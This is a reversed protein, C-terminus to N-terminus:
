NQSDIQSPNTESVLGSMNREIEEKYYERLKSRFIKSVNFEKNFQRLQDLMQKETETIRIQITKNRKEKM